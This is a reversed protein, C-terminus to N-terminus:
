AIALLREPLTAVASVPPGFRVEEAAGGALVALVTAQSGSPVVTTGDQVPGLTYVSQAASSGDSTYAVSGAPSVATM